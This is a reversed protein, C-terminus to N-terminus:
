QAVGQDIIKQPNTTVLKLAKTKGIIKGAISVAKKLLPKRQLSAHSDTALFQVMKSRLLHHACYQVQSGLHGTVSEATIQALAGTELLEELITPQKLIAMNREPHAIIVTYGQIQLNYIKLDIDEPVYKHPLELLIYRSACLGFKSIDGDYHYSIEGGSYIDLPVDANELATRLEKIKTQILESYVSNGILHPTAIMTKIGDKVAMKAMRLSEAIDPAGDDIGPLIHSHIDIM